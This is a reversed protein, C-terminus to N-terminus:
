GVWTQGITVEVEVAVPAITEELAEVMCGRLWDAAAPADAEPAEIVIEDHCFLVPVAAPCEARREWLLAIAAKLGDAGTGQVPTNLADQKNAYLAGDASRKAVPLVRRRGGLTRVEHTGTPDARFRATVDAGVRAHWARLAPYATFFADRYSRAQADTLTVGYNAQAYQRLGKWGMGYLLGFNVAKALQRDAKTVAAEPKGLVRAATLTHLDRGDRYAAIMVAEDAVKAAIRLEIQSYDAKVLVCGPRAVFCRRYESGRPIQQLNPDSCSMRGSEAGLQNWSPLVAGGAAHAEVWARGYTGVRKACGRYARLLGALPHNVGALTDDDTADVSVGVQAFADKVQQPSDWNRTEMGPLGAPNPALADMADALRAREAGAADALALWAPVDVAVPAAWAIGPLARMETEAIASLDAAALKEKLASALPVLVAADDAAYRIQAATLRGSWDSAQHDKDLERGLERAVVDGLGHKLRAGTGDRRGAHRVRSALMTDFVRGPVFGLPSLFRLDFQANHGVIEKGALAAFLPALDGRPNALAFVDVVAVDEGVAVQILRVRDTRPDLGTTETDLGIPGAWGTLADVLTGVGAATTIVHPAPVPTVSPGEPAPCEAGAPAPHDHRRNETTRDQTVRSVEYEQEGWGEAGRDCAETSDSKVTGPALEPGPSPDPGGPRTDCTGGDGSDDEEGPRTYSTDRTVCPRPAPVFYTPQWGGAPREPAPEWTGLDLAVLKQLDARALEPTTYKRQNSRQFTRVTVRGENRAAIRAVLEALKRVESEAASEALLAYVREAEHACWEALRIGAELDDLGIPAASPPVGWESGPPAGSPTGATRVLHRVLAFRGPLAELKALVAARAGEAEFQRLGWANVFRKLRAQAAPALPVVVPCGDGDADPASQLAFLADLSRQAADRTAASIADDSWTKPTRPPMAFIIRAVLGSEFLAHSALRKLVGPQIGGTISTAAHPVFVQTKDGTKRDYIIADARHMSLWNPEDTGGGGKYKTFSGFWGALEDRAVLLGRRNDDHLGALKEVTVDAVVVRELNPKEPEDGAGDSDKFAKRNRKYETLADTHAKVLRKQRARVLDLSLNAAATKMGGSEAVPCTWLVAPEFWEGGLHARRTNGVAGALVALLPLAILSADCKLAAAGERVFASWPAPLCDTPFPVFEPIPAYREPPVPATEYRRGDGFVVRPATPPVGLGDTVAGVVAAGHAGLLTM